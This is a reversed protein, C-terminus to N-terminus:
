TGFYIWGYSRIKAAFPKLAKEIRESTSMSKMPACFLNVMECPQGVCSARLVELKREEFPSEEM